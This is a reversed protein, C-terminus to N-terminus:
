DASSLENGESSILRLNSNREFHIDIVRADLMRIQERPIYIVREATDYSALILAGMDDVLSLQHGLSQKCKLLIDEDSFNNINVTEDVEIPVKIQHTVESDKDKPDYPHIVLEIHYEVTFYNNINIM